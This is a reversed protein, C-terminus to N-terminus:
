TMTFKKITTLSRSAPVFVIFQAHRLYHLKSHFLGLACSRGVEKEQKKSIKSKADGGKHSTSDPMSSSGGSTVSSTESQQDDFVDEGEADQLLPDEVCAM